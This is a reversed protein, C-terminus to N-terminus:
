RRRRFRWRMLSIGGPALLALSAALTGPEPVIPARAFFTNGDPGTLHVSFLNYTGSPLDQAVFTATPVVSGAGAIGDSPQTKWGFAASTDTPEGNVKNWEWGGNLDTWGATNSYAYGNWNQAPDLPDTPTLGTPYPIFSWMEYAPDLFVNFTWLDTGSDYSQTVFVPYGTQASDFNPWPDAWAAAAVIFTLAVAVLVLCHTRRM